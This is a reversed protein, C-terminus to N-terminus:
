PLVLKMLDFFPDPYVFLTIMDGAFVAGLASGAYLLAATHQVRANDEDRLHLAFINGILAALHFLYGFLLSLRDVRLPVLTYDLFAIEVTTGAELGLINIGGVIPTLLLLGKRLNGRTVAVLLAGVLFFVFPHRLLEIGM